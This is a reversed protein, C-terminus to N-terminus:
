HETSHQLSKNITELTHSAGQLELSIQSCRELLESLEAFSSEMGQSYEEYYLCMQDRMQQCVGRVEKILLEEFTNMIEQDVARRENIREVLDQAKKGIENVKSNTPSVMSVDGLMSNAPTNRSLAKSAGLGSDDTQQENSDDLSIFSLTDGSSNLGDNPVKAHLHGTKPTSQMTSTGSNTFFHQAMVKM